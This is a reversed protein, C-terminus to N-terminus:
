NSSLGYVAQLESLYSETIEAQLQMSLQTVGAKEMRYYTYAGLTDLTDEGIHDGIRIISARASALREEPSNTHQGVGTVM